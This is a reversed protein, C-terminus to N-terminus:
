RRREPIAALVVTDNTSILMRPNQRFQTESRVHQRVFQFLESVTVVKDEDFDAKGRLGEFCLTAFTETAEEGGRARFPRKM